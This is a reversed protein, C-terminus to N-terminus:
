FMYEIEGSLCLRIVRGVSVVWELNKAGKGYDIIWV